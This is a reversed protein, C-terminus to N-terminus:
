NRERNREMGGPINGSVYTKLQLGMELAASFIAIELSQVLMTGVMTSASGMNQNPNVAVLADGYPSCNDLVFDAIEFLRQGSDHRAPIQKSAEVSTMAIVLSGQKKAHIALEIPVANVGSTSIVMVTDLEGIDLQSFEKVIWGSRKEEVSSKEVPVQSLETAAAFLCQYDMLGGARYYGDQAVLGSHGCGFAMLRGGKSMRLSIKKALDTITQSNESTNYAYM